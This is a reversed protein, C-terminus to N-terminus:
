GPHIRVAGDNGEQLGPLGGPSSPSLGHRFPDVDAGAEEDRCSRRAQRHGRRASLQESATAAKAAGDAAKAINAAHRRTRQGACAIEGAASARETRRRATEAVTDATRGVRM